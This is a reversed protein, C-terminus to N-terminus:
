NIQFVVQKVSIIELHLIKIEATSQLGNRKILNMTDTIQTITTPHDDVLELQRILHTTYIEAHPIKFETIGTTCISHFQPLSLCLGSQV